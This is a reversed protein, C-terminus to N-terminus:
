EYWKQSVKFIKGLNDFSCIVSINLLIRLPLQHACLKPPSLHTRFHSSCVTEDEQNWLQAPCEQVSESFVSALKLKHQVAIAVFPQFCLWSHTYHLSNWSYEKEGALSVATPPLLLLDEINSKHQSLIMRM